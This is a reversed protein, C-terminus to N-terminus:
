SYYDTTRWMNGGVQPGWRWVAELGYQCLSFVMPRRTRRLADYMKRYAGRMEEPKYVERGSCWDYKVFDV